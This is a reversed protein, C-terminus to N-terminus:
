LRQEFLDIFGVVCQAIRLLSSGIILLALKCLASWATVWECLVKAASERTCIEVKIKTSTLVEIVDYVLEKSLSKSPLVYLAVSIILEIEVDAELIRESTTGHRDRKFDVPLMGINVHAYWSAHIVTSLQAELTVTIAAYWVLWRTIEINCHDYILMGRKVPVTGMQVCVDLDIGYRDHQSQLMFQLANVAGHQVHVYRSARLRIGCQSHLSVAHLNMVISTLTSVQEDM